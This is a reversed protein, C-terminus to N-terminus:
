ELNPKGFVQPPGLFLQLTYPAPIEWQNPDAYLGSKSFDYPIGKVVTLYVVNATSFKPNQKEIGKAQKKPIKKLNFLKAVM